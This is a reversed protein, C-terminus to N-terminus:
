VKEKVRGRIRNALAEPNLGFCALCSDSPGSPPFGSVGMPILEIPISNVAAAFAIQSSLGSVTLHDELVFVPGRSAAERIEGEEIAFPCSIGVVEIDIGQSRLLDWTKVAQASMAGLAFLTAQSGKRLHHAKGYTFTDGSFFERGEEDTLVPTKSRGVGIMYNGPNTLAFRAALDTENPDLPIVVSFGELNRLLGLYDICQHTKGDEGVDIGLHTCFLKLHARNIANLRQQNYTEDIGFM